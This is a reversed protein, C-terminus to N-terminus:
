REGEAQSPTARPIDRGEDEGEGEAQSPTEHTPEVGEVAQEAEAAFTDQPLSRSPSVREPANPDMVEFFINNDRISTVRRVEGQPGRYSKGVELNEVSLSMPNEQQKQPGAQTGPVVV